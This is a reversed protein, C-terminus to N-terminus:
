RRQRSEAHSTDGSWLEALSEEITHEAVWGLQDHIASVDACQWDVSASRESRRDTEIITGGFGAIAALKEVLHLSNVAHGRAVNLVAGARPETIAALLAARAIDRTDVYDRWANLAGLHIENAGARLALDIQRAASGALTTPPSFRGIPNFIRLVTASIRGDAAAQMLRETAILKTLGYESKPTAPMDESVPQQHNQPGYEAASGLHVLHAGKCEQLEAILRTVVVVNAIRMHAPEGVTTGTCNIVADPAVDDVMEAISGPASDLLDLMRTEFEDTFGARDDTGRSHLVVDAAGSDALQHAISRGLFGGAGLVLLRPAM